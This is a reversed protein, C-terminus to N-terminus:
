EVPFDAETKNLLVECESGLWDYGARGQEIYFDCYNIHSGKEITNAQEDLKLYKGNGLDEYIVGKEASILYVLDLGTTVFKTIQEKTLAKGYNGQWENNCVKIVWDKEWHVIQFNAQGKWTGGSANAPDYFHTQYTISTLANPNGLTPDEIVEGNEDILEATTKIKMKFAVSDTMRRFLGNDGNFSQARGIPGAAKFDNLKIKRYPGYNDNNIDITLDKNETTNKIYENHAVYEEVKSVVEIIFDGSPLTGKFEGNEEELDYYVGGSLAYVDLDAVQEETLPNKGLTLKGKVDITSTPIQEFEAEISINENVKELMITPINGYYTVKNTVDVDNCKILKLRCGEDPLVYLSATTGRYISSKDCVIKGNGKNTITVPFSDWGNSTFKWWSNPNNWQWGPLNNEGFSHWIRGEPTDDKKVILAPHAFLYDPINEDMNLHKWSIFSEMIYGTCEDSNLPGGKTSSAIIPATEYGSAIDQFTGDLQVATRVNNNPNFDIEWSSGEFYTNNGASFYLEIGSNYYSARESSVHADKDDVEFAFFVGTKSPLIMMRVPIEDSLTIYADEFWQAKKYIEDDLVGDIKLIDDYDGVPIKDNEFHYEEEDEIINYNPECSTLALTILAFSSLAFINRIKKM